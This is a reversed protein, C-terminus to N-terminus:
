SLKSLNNGLTEKFNRKIRNITKPSCNFKVALRESSWRLYSKKDLLFATISKIM